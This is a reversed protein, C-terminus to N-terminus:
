LRREKQRSLLERLWLASLGAIGVAWLWLFMPWYPPRYRVTVPGAATVRVGIRPRDPLIEAAGSEVAWGGLSNLNVELNAPPRGEYRLAVRGPTVSELTPTGKGSRAHIEGRYMPQGEFFAHRQPQIPEYCLFSGLGKGYHSPEDADKITRRWTGGTILPATIDARIKPKGWAYAARWTTTSVALTELALFAALAAAAWARRTQLRAVAAALLVIWGIHFLVFMRSPGHANRLLPIHQLLSWPSLPALLNTAAWLFLLTIVLWPRLRRRTPADRLAWLVCAVAAVGLYMGYEHFGYELGTLTQHRTQKPWFFIRPLYSFLVEDEIKRARTIHIMVIPVVKSALVAASSITLLLAHMPAARLTALAARWPVLGAATMALAVYLAYVFTYIGGELMFWCGLTALVLQMRREGLRLMALCVLPLLAAPGFRIHGESWHLAFWSSGAFLFGGLWAIWRLHGLHRLLASMSAFGAAASLLLTTLNSAHPTLALDLLTLPSLVRSQPNAAIDVGGCVWPNHLPFTGYSLVASRVVMSLSDFYHWDNGAIWHRYYLPVALVAAACALAALAELLFAPLRPRM